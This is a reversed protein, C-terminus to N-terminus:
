APREFALRWAMISGDDGHLIAPPEVVLGHSALAAAVDHFVADEDARRVLFLNHCGIVAHPHIRLPRMECIRVAASARSM